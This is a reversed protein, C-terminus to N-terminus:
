QLKLSAITEKIQAEVFFMLSTKAHLSLDCVNAQMEDVVRCARQNPTPVEEWEYWGDGCHQPANALRKAQDFLTRFRQESEM